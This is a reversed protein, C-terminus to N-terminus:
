PPADLRPMNGPAPRFRAGHRWRRSSADEHLRFYSAVACSAGKDQQFATALRYCLSHCRGLVPLALIFDSASPLERSCRAIPSTAFFDSAFLLHCFRAGSISFTQWAGIIRRGSVAFILRSMTVRYGRSRRYSRTQHVGSSKPAAVDAHSSAPPSAGVRGPPVAQQVTGTMESAATARAMHPRSQWSPKLM